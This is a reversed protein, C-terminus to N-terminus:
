CFGASFVKPGLIRCCSRQVQFAWVIQASNKAWVFWWWKVPMLQADADGHLLQPAWGLPSSLILSPAYCCRFLLILPAQCLKEGHKDWLTFCTPSTEELNLSCTPNRGSAANSCCSVAEMEFSRLLCALVLRCFRCGENKILLNKKGEVCPTKGERGDELDSDLRGCQQLVSSETGLCKLPVSLVLSM